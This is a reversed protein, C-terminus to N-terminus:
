ATAIYTISGVWHGSVNGCYWPRLRGADICVLGLAGMAASTGGCAAITGGTWPVPCVDSIIAVNDSSYTSNFTIDWVVTVIRRNSRIKIGKYSVSGSCYNANVACTGETESGAYTATTATDANGQLDGVFKTAKVNGNPYIQLNNTSYYEYSGIFIYSLDENNGFVGMRAFANNNHDVVRVQDFAWGGGTSTKRNTSSIFIREPDPKIDGVINSTGDFSNGWLTRATQLKTATDANGTLNGIFGGATLKGNTDDVYVGSAYRPIGDAGATSSVWINHLTSGSAGSLNGDIRTATAANGTINIAYSGYDAVVLRQWAVGSLTVNGEQKGRIWWGVNNSGALQAMATNDPTKMTLMGYFSNVPKTGSEGTTESSDRIEFFGNFGPNDFNPSTGVDGRSYSCLITPKGTVESWPHTHSSPTFTSPKDTVESWSPWRTATAPKDTVESWPHTHSSPTFTSPKDTVESWSPWRTATAPKDTVESWGHTHSSPTFTSPKDTVESWAPWRTATDPKNTIDSWDYHDTNPNAPMTVHISVGAIDAVKSRTGWALTPDSDNVSTKSVQSYVSGSWRYQLNDSTTLDVYIKGGEPTILQTHASDTYFQGNYLYGDIIDDVYSPLQTEPVKGAGDLTAVGGAAGKESTPIFGTVTQEDRWAPNGNGDTKWVKNAQGAGSAVYGESTASNAKWTDPNAPMTVHLETGSVTGVGSRTGWALTPDGDTVSTPRQAQPDAYEPMIDVAAQVIDDIVGDMLKEAGISNNNVNYGTVTRKALDFVNSLKVGAIKRRVIDWELETVYLKVNLGITEDIGTITDYLLVKELGKMWAYEATDGLQEIQITIEQVVEDAHDVSFREGAKARMEDLLDAETWTAGDGTGKDKGVQGKVQLQEMRIVPYESIHASDIWKEPLYLDAGKEDKAVPVVRTIINASSKKWTIGRANKGYRVQYGRDVTEKKMLFLDWNDRTFKAGFASVIGRDPDLLAFMANKGRVEGTYTGNEDTTLNTAITGRYPIMMGEMLLGIAMAPSAQGIGVNQILIGGLDYSVHTGSVSVRKGQSDISPETLRFLQETIIRPEIQSPTLHKEFTAQSKKIYGVLGYFTSMKYWNADADEVYYLETGAPLTVLAASGTTMRPIKTWWSSYKPANYSLPSVEDYYDCRYNQGDYSVKAGKAYSAGAVWAQYIIPTPESPGERLAAAETTKYVDAEMGVFANDIREEPVPAKVIAGPVLHKWKGEPDMAIEMSLEYGGGAVQRVSGSVPEIVVDGLKDFDENGIDYVHIM